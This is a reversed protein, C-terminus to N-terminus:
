QKPLDGVSDSPSLAIAEGNKVKKISPNCNQKNQWFEYFLNALDDSIAEKQKNTLKGKKDKSM